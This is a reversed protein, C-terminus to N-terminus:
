KIVVNLSYEGRGKGPSFQPSPTHTHRPPACVGGRQFTSGVAFVAHIVIKQFYFDPGECLGKSIFSFM